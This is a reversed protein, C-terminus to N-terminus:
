IIKPNRLFGLKFNMDLSLYEPSSRVTSVIIVLRESGQFEEVSGVTIDKWSPNRPSHLLSRIKQVQKMAEVITVTKGTGPPGFVIYPAPRSVGSVINNVATVQEPNKEIQANFFRTPRPGPNSTDSSSSVVEKPFLVKELSEEFALECARHQLRLPLRNFVFRVNFKMNPVFQRLLSDNFGLLVENQQIEHVFGQYETDGLHKGDKNIRVYLWDGKLVSPRNEALGPVQLSLLKRNSTYETMTVNEMDYKRIDVEM